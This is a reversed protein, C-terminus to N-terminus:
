CACVRGLALHTGAPLFHHCCCKSFITEEMKSSKHILILLGPETNRFHEPQYFEAWLTKKREIKHFIHHMLVPSFIFGRLKASGPFIENLLVQKCSSLCIEGFYFLERLLSNLFSSEPSFSFFVAFITQQKM